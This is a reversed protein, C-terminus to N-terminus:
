GDMLERGAKLERQPATGGASLERARKVGLFLLEILENEPLAAGLLQHCICM